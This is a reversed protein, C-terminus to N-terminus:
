ESEMEFTRNEGSDYDYAEITVTGGFTYIDQIEVNKYEGDAHDYIEIDNGSRVLNDPGIEIYANNDYDYGDWALCVRPFLSVAAFFAFFSGRLLLNNKVMDNGEVFRVLGIGM